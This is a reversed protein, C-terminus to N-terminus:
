KFYPRSSGIVSKLSSADREENKDEGLPFRDGLHKRWLKSAKLQNEEDVALKADDAFKSLNDLFNKRKTESFGAFLDDKPTTPMVCEFSKDLVKKIEGLLFKLAVDDRDTSYYNNLTLITMALGSPMDERKHDCWAKLYKIMRNMQDSKRSKYYDVFEKPDDERFGNDKVALLPHEDLEKDFIMVPLDIDYGSAYQVRICKKKHIPTADTTGDVADRVWKQLTTSTVNNPNAVFYVGDDLDCNDEKTRICTGLKYSGQIYFSPSYGPHNAKFKEKIRKRLNERSTMMKDKKSALINLNSDFEKFLEDCNAM